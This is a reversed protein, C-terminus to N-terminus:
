TPGYTHAAANYCGTGPASNLITIGIPWAPINVGQYYGTGANIVDIQMQAVANRTNINLGVQNQQSSVLPVHQRVLSIAVGGIIMFIAMAVLLEILTFGESQRRSGPRAPGAILQQRINGMTR